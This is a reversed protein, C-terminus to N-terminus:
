SMVLAVSFNSFGAMITLNLATCWLLVFLAASGLRFLSTLGRVACELSLFSLVLAVRSGVSFWRKAIPWSLEKMAQLKETAQVRYTKAVEVTPGLDPWQVDKLSWRGINFYLNFGGTEKAASRGEEARGKMEDTPMGMKVDQNGGAGRATSKPIDAERESAEGRKSSTAKTEEGGRNKGQHSGQSKSPSFGTDVIEPGEPQGKQQGSSKKDEKLEHIGNIAGGAGAEESDIGAYKTSGIDQGDRELQGM